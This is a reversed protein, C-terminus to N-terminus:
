ETVKAANSRAERESWEKPNTIAFQVDKVIADARIRMASALIGNRKIESVGRASNTIIVSPANPIDLQMDCRGRAGTRHKAIWQPVTAGPSGCEQWGVMWGAKLRGIRQILRKALAKVTAKKTVIKQWVYVDQQGHGRPYKARGATRKIGGRGLFLAELGEVSADRYDVDKAIGYVAFKSSGTWIVTGDGQKAIDGSHDAGGGTNIQHFKTNVRDEIRRASKDYDKPPSLNILTRCLLGAQRKVITKTNGGLRTIRLSIADRLRGMQVNVDTSFHDDM